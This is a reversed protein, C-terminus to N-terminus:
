RVAATLLTVFKETGFEALIARPWEAQMARAGDPNHSHILVFADGLRDKIARIFILGDDEHSADFTRGNLDHDLLVIDYPGGFEAQRINTHVCEWDIGRQQFLFRDLWKIRNPDDELVFIKM